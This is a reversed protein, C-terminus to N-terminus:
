LSGKAYTLAIENAKLVRNYIRIDDIIGKYYNYNANSHDKYGIKNSANIYLRSFTGITQPTGELKGNVYIRAKGDTPDYTGVLYYWKDTGLVTTGTAYVYAAPNADSYAIMQACGGASLGLGGSSYDSYGNSIQQGFIRQAGPGIVSPKVWASYTVGRTRINAVTVVDNPFTISDDVGDFSYAGTGIKSNETWKPTTALALTANYENTSYDMVTGDRSFITFPTSSTKEEVQIETIDITSGKNPWFYLNTGGTNPATLTISYRQWELTATKPISSGNWNGNTYM